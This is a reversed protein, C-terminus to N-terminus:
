FCFTVAYLITYSEFNGYKAYFMAFELSGLGESVYNNHLAGLIKRRNGTVTVSFKM